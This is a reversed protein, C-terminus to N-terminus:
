YATSASLRPEITIRIKRGERYAVVPLDASDNTAALRVSFRLEGSSPIREKRIPLLVTQGGGVAGFRVGGLYVAADLHSVNQIQVLPVTGSPAPLTGVTACASLLIATLAIIFRNM